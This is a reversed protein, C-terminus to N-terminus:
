YGRIRLSAALVIIVALVVLLLCGRVIWRESHEDRPQPLNPRDQDNM